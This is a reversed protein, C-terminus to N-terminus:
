NKTFLWDVLINAVQDANLNRADAFRAAGPDPRASGDPALVALAPIGSSSLKVYRAALDTNHDYHGVDVTVLHYDRALIQHVGPDRVLTTLAQCDQCWSAGFDLLVPRGDARAAALAAALDAPADAAPDYGDPVAAPTVVPLPLFPHALGTSDSSVSPGGARYSAAALPRGHVVVCGSLVLLALLAPVASLVVRGPRGTM